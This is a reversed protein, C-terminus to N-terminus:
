RSAPPQRCRASRSWSVASRSSRSASDTSSVSRSAVASAPWSAWPSRSAPNVPIPWRAAVVSALAITAGVSLDFGGAILVLAQGIAVVTLFSANRLINLINIVGYFNPEVLSMVVVVILLLLPLLGAGALGKAFRAAFGEGAGSEIVSASM